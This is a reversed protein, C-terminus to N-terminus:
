DECRWHECRNMWFPFSVSGECCRGFWCLNEKKLFVYAPPMCTDVSTSTIAVSCWVQWINWSSLSFSNKTTGRIIEKGKAPKSVGPNLANRESPITGYCKQILVTCSEFRSGESIWSVNNEVATKLRWAVEEAVEVVECEIGRINEKWRWSNNFTKFDWPESEARRYQECVTFFETSHFLM